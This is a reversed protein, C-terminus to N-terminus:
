SSPTAAPAPTPETGNAIIEAAERQQRALEAEEAKIAEHRDRYAKEAVRRVDIKNTISALLETQRTNYLVVMRNVEALNALTEETIEGLPVYMGHLSYEKTKEGDQWTIRMSSDDTMGTVRGNRITGDLKVKTFPVDIRIMRRRVKNEIDSRLGYLTSSKIISNDPLVTRFEGEETVDIVFERDKVTITTLKM